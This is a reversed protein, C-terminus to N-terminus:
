TPPRSPRFSARGIGRTFLQFNYLVLGPNNVTDARWSSPLLAALQSQYRQPLLLAWKDVPVASLLQGM